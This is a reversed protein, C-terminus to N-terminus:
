IRDVEVEVNEVLVKQQLTPIKLGEHLLFLSLLILFIFFGPWFTAWRATFDARGYSFTVGLQVPFVGVIGLFGLTQFLLIAFAMELPIYKIILKAIDFSNRGRRIAHAISQTFIPILLVGIGITFFRTQMGFLPGLVLFLGAAPFIFFVIMSGMVGYYVYRHFRGAFFGFISGGALGILVAVIGFLFAGQTGYLVRALVDYGYKTTGLPHDPSPPLFPLDPPLYPLTIEQLSYPTFLQPFASISVLFILLGLGVITFPNKLTEIIYNKLETKLNARSKQDVEKTPKVDSPVVKKRLKVAQFKASLKERFSKIRKQIKGERNEFRKVIITRLSRYAIPITNSFFVLFSSFIILIFMCGNILFLDGLFISTLFYYSFGTRNFSIELLIVIAFLFGFLKVTTYINTLFTFDKSNREINIQTQKIIFPLIVFVLAITPLIGHEIISGAFAWNGSVISDFFPFGTIFPPSILGPKVYFFVPIDIVGRTINQLTFGFFYQLRPIFIFIPIALFLLTLIRIIYGQIKTRNNVCIRGLRIGILGILLPLILTEISKPVLERMMETVPLGSAIVYSNGWEGRFFNLFYNTFQIHIPYNFGYQLAIAQYEAPTMVMSLGNLLPSQITSYYILFSIILGIFLVLLGYVLSFLVSSLLKKPSDRMWLDGM